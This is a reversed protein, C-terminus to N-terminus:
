LGHKIANYQSIDKSAETKVGDFMANQRNAALQKDSVDTM